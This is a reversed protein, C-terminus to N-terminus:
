MMLCKSIMRIIIKIADIYNISIVKDKEFNTRIIVSSYELYKLNSKKANLNEM